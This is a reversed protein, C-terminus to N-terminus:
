ESKTRRDEKIIYKRFINQNIQCSSYTIRLKELAVCLSSRKKKKIFNLAIFNQTTHHAICQHTLSFLRFFLIFIFLFVSTFVRSFLINGVSMLIRKAKSRQHSENLICCLGATSFFTTLMRRRLKNILIKLLPYRQAIFAM